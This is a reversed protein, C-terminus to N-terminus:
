PTPKAPPKPFLGAMQWAEQACTMADAHIDAGTFRAVLIGESQIARDRARDASAQEKTRDHFDHGDCEVAVSRAQEGVRCVMVLFDLRYRKGRAWATAQPVLAVVEGTTKRSFQAMRDMEPDDAWVAVQDGAEGRAVLASGMLVEIPSECLSSLERMNRESTLPAADAKAEAKRCACFEENRGCRVCQDPVRTIM